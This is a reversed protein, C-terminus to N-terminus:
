RCFSPDVAPSGIPALREYCYNNGDKAKLIQYRSPEATEGYPKGTYIGAARIAARNMQIFHVTSDMAASTDSPKPKFSGPWYTTPLGLVYRSGDKIIPGGSNGGYISCNHYAVRNNKVLEALPNGPGRNSAAWAQYGAKEESDLDVYEVPRGTSVWCDSTITFEGRRTRSNPYGLMKLKTKLRPLQSSLTLFGIDRKARMWDQFELEVIVLDNAMDGAVVRKCVGVHDGVETRFHIRGDKCADTLKYGACHRATGVYPRGNKNNVFFASCFGANKTRTSDSFLEMKLIADAESDAHGGFQIANEFIQFASAPAGSFTTLISLTLMLFRGAYKM